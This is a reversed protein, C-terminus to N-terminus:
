YLPFLLYTAIKGRDNLIELSGVILNEPAENIKISNETMTKTIDRFTDKKQILLHNMYNESTRM